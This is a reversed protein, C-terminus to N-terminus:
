YLDGEVYAVMSGTGAGTDAITVNVYITANGAIAPAVGTFSWRFTENVTDLGTLAAAAAIEAGGATTGISVTTNGNLGGGGVATLHFVINELCFYQTGAGGLAVGTNAVAKVDIAASAARTKGHQLATATRHSTLTTAEVADYNKITSLRM